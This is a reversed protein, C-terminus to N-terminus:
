LVIWLLGLFVDIDHHGRVLSKQQSCSICVLREWEALSYYEVLIHVELGSWKKHLPQSPTDIEIHLLKPLDIGWILINPSRDELFLYSNHKDVVFQYTPLRCNKNSDDLAKETPEYYRAVALASRTLGLHWVFSRTVPEFVLSFQLLNRTLMFIFPWGPLLGCVGNRSPRFIIILWSCCTCGLRCSVGMGPRWSRLRQDTM